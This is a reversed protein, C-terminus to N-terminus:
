VQCCRLYSSRGTAQSQSISQMLVLIIVQTLTLGPPLLYYLAHLSYLSVVLKFGSDIPIATDIVLDQQKTVPYAQSTLIFLAQDKVCKVLVLLRKSKVWDVM